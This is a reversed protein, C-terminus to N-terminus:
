GGIFDKVNMSYTHIVAMKFPVATSLEEGGSVLFLQYGVGGQAQRAQSQPGAGLYLVHFSGSRKKLCLM